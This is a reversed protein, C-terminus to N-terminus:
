SRLQRDVWEQILARQETIFDFQVAVHEGQKRRIAGPIEIQPGNPLDFKVHVPEGVSLPGSPTFLIGGIAIDKTVGTITRLGAIVTVKTACNIRPPVRRERNLQERAEEPMWGGPRVRSQWNVYLLVIGVIVVTFLFVKAETMRHDKGTLAHIQLRQVSPFVIVWSNM